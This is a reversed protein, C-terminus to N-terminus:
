RAHRVSERQKQSPRHALNNKLSDSMQDFITALDWGTNTYTHRRYSTIINADVEYRRRREVEIDRIKIHCRAEEIEPSIKRLLRIISAFKSKVLEADFPDDPLGIIYVPISEEIREALLAIIDGYTIIGRLNGLAKVVSYTSNRDVMLGTLSRLSDDVNSITINEGDDNDAVGIVSFDLRISKNDIGISERGIRESPLMAQAIHTSTLMGALKTNEQEEVIPLHDIRRRMMINRATSVRDKPTIVIPNPTMINSANVTNSNRSGSIDAEYIGKVIAKSEFTVLATIIKSNCSKEMDNKQNEKEIIIHHQLADNAMLSVRLFSEIASKGELGETLKSFPEYIIADDAFLDMLQEIDKNKILRFYEFVMYKNILMKKNRTKINNM